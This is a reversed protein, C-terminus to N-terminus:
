LGFINSRLIGMEGFIKWKEKGEEGEGESGFLEGRWINQM